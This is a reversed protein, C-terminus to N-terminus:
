EDDEDQSKKGKLAQVSKWHSRQLNSHIGFSDQELDEQKPLEEKPILAYRGLKGENKKLLQLTAEPSLKQYVCMYNRKDPDTKVSSYVCHNAATIKIQKQDGLPFEPGFILEELNETEAYEAIMNEVVKKVWKNVQLTSSPADSDGVTSDGDVEATTCKESSVSHSSSPADKDTEVQDVETVEEQGKQNPVPPLDNIYIFDDTDSDASEAKMKDAKEKIAEYTHWTKSDDGEPLLKIVPQHQYMKFLIKAAAKASAELNSNGTAEALKEGQLFLECKLLSGETTGKGFMTVFNKTATYLLIEYAKNLRDSSFMDQEMITMREWDRPFKTYDPSPKYLIKKKLFHIKVSNSWFYIKTKKGEWLECVEAVDHVDRTTIRKFDNFILEPSSNCLVRVAEETARKMADAFKYGEGSCIYICDIYLDCEAFRETGRTRKKLLLTVLVHNNKSIMQLINSPPPNKTAVVKKLDTVLRVLKQEMQKGPLSVHRHSLVDHASLNTYDDDAPVGELIVSMPSNKLFEVGKAYTKYKVRKCTRGVATAILHGDLLLLGKVLCFNPWLEVSEEKYERNFILSASVNANNFQIIPTDARKEFSNLYHILKELKDRFTLPGSPVGAVVGEEAKKTEEAALLKVKLKEIGEDELKLIEPVPNNLLVAVAKEYCAHKVDKKSIGATRALFVNNVQLSGTFTLKKGIKGLSDHKYDGKLKYRSMFIDLTHIDNVHDDTQIYRRVDAILRTLKSELTKPVLSSGRDRIRRDPIGLDLSLLPVPKEKPQIHSQRRRLTETEQYSSPRPQIRSQQEKWTETQHYSSRTPRDKFGEMRGRKFNTEDRIGHMSSGRKFGRSEQPHAPTEMGYAGGTIASISQSLNQMHEESFQDVIKMVKMVKNMDVPSDRSHQREAAMRMRLEQMVGKDLASSEQGQKMGQLGSTHRSMDGFRFRETDRFPEASQGKHSRHSWETRTENRPQYYPGRTRNSIYEHEILNTANDIDPQNRGGEFTNVRGVEVPHSTNRRKSLFKSLDKEVNPTSTHGTSEVGFRSVTDMATNTMRDMGQGIRSNRWIVESEMGTLGRSQAGFYDNHQDNEFSEDRSSSSFGDRTYSTTDPRSQFHFNSGGEYIHARDSMMRSGPSFQSPNPHADGWMKGSSQQSTRNFYGTDVNDHQFRSRSYGDSRSFQSQNNEAEDWINSSM